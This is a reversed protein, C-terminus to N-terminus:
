PQPIANLDSGPSMLRHPNLLNKRKANKREIKEMAPTHMKAM